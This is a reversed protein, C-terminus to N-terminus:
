TGKHKADKFWGEKRDKLPPLEYGRDEDLQAQTIGLVPMLWAVVLWSLSLGRRAAERRLKNYTQEWMMIQIQKNVTSFMYKTGRNKDDSWRQWGEKSKCLRRNVTDNILATVSIDNDFAYKYLASKFRFSPIAIKVKCKEM